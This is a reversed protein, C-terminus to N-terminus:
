PEPHINRVLCKKKESQSEHLSPPNSSVSTMKFKQITVSLYKLYM